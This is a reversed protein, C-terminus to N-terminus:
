APPLNPMRPDVPKRGSVNIGTADGAMRTQGRYGSACPRKPARSERQLHPGRSSSNSKTNGYAM